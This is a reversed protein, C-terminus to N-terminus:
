PPYERAPPEFAHQRWFIAHRTLQFCFACATAPLQRHLFIPTFSFASSFHRLRSISTPPPRDETPRAAVSGPSASTACRLLMAAFFHLLRRRRRSRQSFARSSFHPKPLAPTCSYRSFEHSQSTHGHRCPSFGAPQLRRRSHTFFHSERICFIFPEIFRSFMALCRTTFLRMM